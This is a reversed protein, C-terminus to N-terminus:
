RSTRPSPGSIARSIRRGWATLHPEGFPSEWRSSWDCLHGTSCFGFGPRAYSRSASQRAASRSLSPAREATSTAPRATSVASAAVAAAASDSAATVAAPSATSRAFSRRVESARCRCVCGLRRLQDVGLCRLGLLARRVRNFFCVGIALPGSIGELFRLRPAESWRRVSLGGVRRPEGGVAVVGFPALGPVRRVM